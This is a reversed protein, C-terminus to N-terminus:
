PVNRTVTAGLFNEIDKLSAASVWGDKLLGHDFHLNGAGDEFIMEAVRPTVLHLTSDIAADYLFLIAHDGVLPQYGMTGNTCFKMPGIEFNAYPIPVELRDTAIAASTRYSTLPHFEALSYPVGEFFGPRVQIIEASYIAKSYKVLDELTENPQPDIRGSIPEGFFSLCKGTEPDVTPPTTYLDKDSDEFLRWDIRGDNTTAAQADIWIPQVKPGSAMFRVLPLEAISVSASVAVSVSLATIFKWVFWIRQPM